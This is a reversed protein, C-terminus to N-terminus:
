AGLLRQEAMVRESAIPTTYPSLTVYRHRLYDDLATKAVELCTPCCVETFNGKPYVKLFPAEVWCNATIEAIGHVSCARM